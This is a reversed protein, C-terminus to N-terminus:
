QKGGQAFAALIETVSPHLVGRSYTADEMGHEDTSVKTGGISKPLMAVDVATAISERSPLRDTGDDQLIEFEFADTGGLDESWVQTVIMESEPHACKVFFVMSGPCPPAVRMEARVAAQADTHLSPPSPPSLYFSISLFLTLSLALALSLSIFNLGCTQGSVHAWDGWFECGM